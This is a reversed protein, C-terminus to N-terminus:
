FSQELPVFHSLSNHYSTQTYKKVLRLGPTVGPAKKQRLDYQLLVYVVSGHLNPQFLVNTNFVVSKESNAADTHYFIKIPM